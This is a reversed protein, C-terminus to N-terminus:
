CEAPSNRNMANGSDATFSYRFQQILDPIMQLLIFESTGPLHM